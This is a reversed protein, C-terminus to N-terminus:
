LVSKIIETIRIINTEELEFYLPLCLVRKAANESVECSHQNSLYPLTNLSPYFYRRAFIGAKELSTKVKLVETESNFFVPYYAGNYKINKNLSPRKISTDSLCSDYLKILENRRETIEDIKKLVCLGMAANFESSKANIGCAFHEDGNHGFRHMLEIKAMIVPDKVVIGGGEITHFLKTAHFSLTSIDGFKLISKGYIKVGFAHAADYIVKLKYKDAIKQISEVDCPYGYVHVALIASTKATIAAEIKSCDICYTHPDIDVYVPLCNEWLIASTSAVYSFPTTIIEDKLELARIALQLALTGNAVNLINDIDLQKCLDMELKSVLPGRNTVINNEWIKALHEQYDEIPPLYTKTVYIM